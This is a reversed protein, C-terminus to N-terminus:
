VTSRLRLASILLVVGGISSMVIAHSKETDVGRWYLIPGAAIMVVGVALTYRARQKPLVALLFLKATASM